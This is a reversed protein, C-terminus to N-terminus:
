SLVQAVSGARGVRFGCRALPQLLTRDLQPERAELGLQPKANAGLTGPPPAEYCGASPVTNPCCAQSQSSTPSPEEQDTRGALLLQIDEGKAGLEGLNLTGDVGEWAAQCCKVPPPPPTCFVIVPLGVVNSM